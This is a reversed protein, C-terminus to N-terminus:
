ADEFYIRVFGYDSREEINKVKRTSIEGNKSYTLQDGWSPAPVYSPVVAQTVRLQDVAGQSTEILVRETVYAPAQGEWKIPGLEAEGGYDDTFGPAQVKTLTANVPPVKAM